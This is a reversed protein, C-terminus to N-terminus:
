RGAEALPTGEILGLPPAEVVKLGAPWGGEAPTVVAAAGEEALLRVLLPRAKGDGGAVWVAHGGARQTLAAAPLRYADREPGRPLEARAFANPFFRHGDNPVEIEVPVRNTAADVAPVIVAVTGDDSRAGTAPVTVIARAGPRLEAAEEQTLTTELLLRRTTVLTVVPTGAALMIGVGDPIRTVVGPFPAALHHHGLNVRAAELQAEAGALQAAALDRQARAQVAQAESGGEERRIRDIRALADEALELQARAAAVGAEAQRCSARAAGDDLAALLAGQRVEQGRKVLVRALTGPVSMALPSSQRAKLTGNVVLRPAFRIAAPAILRAVVPAPVNAGASPAAAQPVELSRAQGRGCAAGLLLLPLLPRARARLNSAPRSFGPEPEPRTTHQVVRQM